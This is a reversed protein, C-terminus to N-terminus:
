WVCFAPAVGLSVDPSVHAKGGLCVHCFEWDSSYSSAVWYPFEDLAPEEYYKIRKGDNAYYELWAQNSGTEGVYDSFWRDTRTEGETPLWLIDRIERPVNTKQSVYRVPAWLATEPVGADLLGDLFKGSEEFGAVPTLYKRMESAAYGKENSYHLNMNIKNMRRHVPINQFQFVVHDVSDNATISYRNGVGKGSRFSNIGVVILRLRKGVNEGSTLILDENLATFAGTYVGEGYEKVTLGGELDIYDGLAIVGAQKALGDAQIFQHLVNFTETVGAAGAALIGFREKISRPDDMPTEKIRPLTWSFEEDAEDPGGCGSVFLSLALLIVPFFRGAPCVRSSLTDAVRGTVYGTNM